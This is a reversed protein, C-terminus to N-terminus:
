EVHGSVYGSRTYVLVVALATGSDRRGSLECQIRTVQSIRSYILGAKNTTDANPHMQACNSSVFRVPFWPLHPVCARGFGSRLAGCEGGALRVGLPQRM